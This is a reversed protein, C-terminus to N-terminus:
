HRSRPIPAPPQGFTSAHDGTRSQQDGRTPVHVIPYRQTSQVHSATGSTRQAALADLNAATLPTNGTRPRTAPTHPIQGSTPPRSAQHYSGDSHTHTRNSASSAGRARATVFSHGSVVTRMDDEDETPTHGFDNEQYSGRPSQAAPLSGHRSHSSHYQSQSHPGSEQGFNHAVYPPPHETMPSTSYASYGQPPNQMSDHASRYTLVGNGAWQIRDRLEPPIARPDM